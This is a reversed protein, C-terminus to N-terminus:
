SVLSRVDSVSHCGTESVPRGCHLGRPLRSDPVEFEWLTECADRTSLGGLAHSSRFKTFTRSKEFSGLGVVKMTKGLQAHCEYNGGYIGRRLRAKRRLVACSGGAHVTLSLFVLQISVAM